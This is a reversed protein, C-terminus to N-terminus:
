GEMQDVLDLQQIADIRLQRKNTKGTDFLPLSNYRLYYKPIDGLGDLAHHGIFKEMCFQKVDTPSIDHEPSTVYCVCIEEYFRMDPVGVVCVDNIGNMTIIIEEMSGPQFMRTGRSICDKIRGKIIIHNQENIYGIDGSRYWMGPFLSEKDLETNKYYKEFGYISRICVEGDEGKTLINGDGDVIKVEFGPIPEGVDGTKIEQGTGPHSLISVYSTESLGYAIKLM